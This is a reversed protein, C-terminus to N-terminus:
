PKGLFRTRFIVKNFSTLKEVIKETGQFPEGEFTLMSNPGYLMGLEVRNTDFKGYYVKLFEQGIANYDM